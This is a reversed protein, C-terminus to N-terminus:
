PSIKTQKVTTHSESDVTLNSIQIAILFQRAIILSNGQPIRTSIIRLLSLHKIALGCSVATGLPVSYLM